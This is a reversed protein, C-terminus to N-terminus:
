QNNKYNQWYSKLSLYDRDAEARFFVAMYLTFMLLGITGFQKLVEKPLGFFCTFVLVAAFVLFFIVCCIYTHILGMTKLAIKTRPREIPTELQSFSGKLFSGLFSLISQLLGGFFNKFTASTIIKILGMIVMLILSVALLNWFILGFWQPLETANDKAIKILEQIGM